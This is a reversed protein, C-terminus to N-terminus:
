LFKSVLVALVLAGINVATLVSIRTKLSTINEHIHPLDNTQIKDLKGDMSEQGKELQGVRWKLTNNGNPNEM